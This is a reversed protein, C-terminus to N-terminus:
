IRRRRASQGGGSTETIPPTFGALGEKTLSTTSPRIPLSLMPMASAASASRGAEAVVAGAVPPSLATGERCARSGCVRIVWAGFWGTFVLALRPVTLNRKVEGSGRELKWHRRKVMAAKARRDLSGGSGLKLDQLDGLASRSLGPM